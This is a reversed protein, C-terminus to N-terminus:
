RITRPVRLSDLAARSGHFVNFDVEADIGNVRGRDSHQWFKWKANARPECPQYYHAVWLPYDSFYAALYRSYFDAGSYIIPKVKYQKEVRDIWRRVGDVLKRPTVGGLEEVDLVPALDGPGLIVQHIFHEAQASADTAPDFYHYAGRILRTKSINGWNQEFYPDVYDTGQTAKIFGFDMRVSRIKMGSVARWDIPGQYRSVDIGHILYGSPLSIGFEKYRVNRSYCTTRKQYFFWVGVSIAALVLLSVILKRHPLGKQSSTM